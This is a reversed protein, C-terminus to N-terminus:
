LYKDGMNRKIDAVYDKISQEKNKKCILLVDKTDVVIFDDLGELLVLKNDAVHVMSNNVQVLIVKKGAIANGFSDKEMNEWASNWTGLDSWGFSAPIVYVNDAKEMIGFDISISSCQPYIQEIAQSEEETNFKDKEAAFVEYIEPLYKEFAAMLNKVKWTFIGANWLFDGSSIFTKALELNPKETFTKVRYIGPAAETTDHQIYGYGTNPYTPKVGLTVLANIHDVFHLAKRATIIFENTELILNDASAAIMLAKPDKKLLKFAVYAICPATNKRFPEALINEQPIGPLQKKVIDVYENATIIYINEKLVLKSYRDYTQQILTKGTGLIDLFQKPFNTRSMPWFRSGIGGAMIAVYHHKNM